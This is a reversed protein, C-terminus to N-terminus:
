VSEKAKQPDVEVEGVPEAFTDVLIDRLVMGGTWLSLLGAVTESEQHHQAFVAEVARIEEPTRPALHQSASQAELPPEPRTLAPPTVVALPEHSELSM